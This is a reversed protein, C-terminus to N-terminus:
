APAYCDELNGERSTCGKGSPVYNKWASGGGSAVVVKDYQFEVKEVTPTAYAKKM